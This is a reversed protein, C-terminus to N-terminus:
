RCNGVVLHLSLFPRRVDSLRQFTSATLRDVLPACLTQWDDQRFYLVRNRFASSETIYFTTQSPTFM